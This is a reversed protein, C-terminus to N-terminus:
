ILKKSNILSKPKKLKPQNIEKSKLFDDLLEMLVSLLPPGIFIGWFKFLGSFLTIGLIVYLPRIGVAKSVFKPSILNSEIQQLILAIILTIICQNSNNSILSIFSAALVGIISGFYPILAFVFYCFALIISNGVKFLSLFIGLFYASLLATIFQCFIIAHLIKFIKRNINLFRNLHSNSLFIRLIRLFMRKLAAREILIYISIIIGLLINFIKIAISALGDFYKHYNFSSIFKTLNDSSFINDILNIIENSTETNKFHSTLNNTLREIIKPISATFNIINQYIIPILTAFVVFLISILAFVVLISAISRRNKTLFDNNFKLLIKELYSSIPLLLFAIFGGIIFPTLINLIKKFWSAILNLNGILNFAFIVCVCFVFRVIWISLNFKKM